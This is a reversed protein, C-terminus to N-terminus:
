LNCGPYYLNELIELLVLSITPLHSGYVCLLRKTRKLLDILDFSNKYYCYSTQRKEKTPMQVSVSFAIVLITRKACIVAFQVPLRQTAWKWVCFRFFPGQPLLLFILKIVDQGKIRHRKLIRKTLILLVYLAMCFM